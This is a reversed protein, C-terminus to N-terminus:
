QHGRTGHAQEGGHAVPAHEATKPAAEQPLAAEPYMRAADEGVLKNTCIFNWRNGARYFLAQTTTFISKLPPYLLYNYLEKTPTSGYLVLTDPELVVRTLIIEDPILEFLNKLTDHMILTKDRVRKALVAKATIDDAQVKLLDAQAQTRHTESEMMAITENAHGGEYRMYFDVGELIGMVFLVFLIWLKTDTRLIQKVRAPTFSLKM